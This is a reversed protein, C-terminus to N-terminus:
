LLREAIKLQRLVNRQTINPVIYARTTELHAHGLHDRIQKESAGSNALETAAGRRLSHGSFPGHRRIAALLRRPSFPFIRESPPRDVQTLIKRLQRNRGTLPLFKYYGRAGRLRLIAAPAGCLLGSANMIDCRRFRRIDGCRLGLSWAFRIAMRVLFSISQDRAIDELVRKQLPM